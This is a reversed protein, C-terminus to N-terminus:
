QVRYVWTGEPEGSGSFKYSLAEIDTAVTSWTSTAANHHQLTYSLGFYQLPNAGSWGLTFQGDANPSAGGTLGPAGPTPYVVETTCSKTTEHGVNDIATRSVTEPGAAATSIPVEGSPDSALGSEADSATVTAHVGQEGTVATAPCTVELS